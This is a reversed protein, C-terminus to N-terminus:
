LFDVAGAKMARVSMPIDGWGTIFIIPVRVGMDALTEQYRLGDVEPLNVDLILCCPSDPRGQAFLDRTSEFTYIAYGECGLLRRLSARVSSDDDVVFVMAIEGTM